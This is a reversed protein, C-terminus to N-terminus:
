RFEFSRFMKYANRPMCILYKIRGGFPMIAANCENELQFNYPMRSPLETRGKPLVRYDCITTFFSLFLSLSLYGCSYNVM